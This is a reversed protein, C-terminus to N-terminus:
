RDPAPASGTWPQLDLTPQPARGLLWALAAARGAPDAMRDALGALARPLELDVFDAPWDEPAYGLGLDAHHVEVERRRMHPIARCPVPGGFTGRGVGAWTTDDAGAMAAELVASAEALDIRIAALPRRAGSDIDRDRGAPGAPYMDSVEGRGAAALVRAFADANRALHTLVHGVSWGPLLSPRGIDVDSLGAVTTALRRHSAVCAAVAAARRAAEGSGGGAGADDEAM